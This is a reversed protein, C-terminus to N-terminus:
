PEIVKAAAFLGVLNEASGVRRLGARWSGHHILDRQCYVIQMKVRKGDLVFEYLAGAEVGRGLLVGLGDRSVDVIRAQLADGPAELRVAYECTVTHYRPFWRNESPKTLGM